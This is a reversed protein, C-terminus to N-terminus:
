PHLSAVTYRRARSLAGPNIVRTGGMRDDRQEHTHGHFFYSFGDNLAVAEHRADDGHAFGILRDGVEIRGFPHDVQLGLLRAYDALDQWDWDCNGFVIHTQHGALADLVRLDCVDGVHILVDAGAEILLGVAVRTIEADGHSDGLVGVCAEAPYRKM